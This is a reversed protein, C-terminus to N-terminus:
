PKRGIIPLHPQTGATVRRAVTRGQDDLAIPRQPGGVIHRIDRVGNADPEVAAIAAEIASRDRRHGSAKHVLAAIRKGDLEVTFDHAPSGIWEPWTGSGAAGSVEWIDRLKGGAAEHAAFDILGIVNGQGDQAVMYDLTGVVSGTADYAILM